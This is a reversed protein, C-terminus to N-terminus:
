CANYELFTIPSEVIGIVEWCLARKCLILRLQKTAADRKRRPVPEKHASRRRRHRKVKISVIKLVITANSLSVFM